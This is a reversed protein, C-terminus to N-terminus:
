LTNVLVKSVKNKAIVQGGFCRPDINQDNKLFKESIDKIKFISWYKVSIHGELHQTGSKLFTSFNKQTPSDIFYNDSVCWTAM